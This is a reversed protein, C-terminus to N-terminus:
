AEMAEVENRFWQLGETWADTPTRRWRLLGTFANLGFRCDAGLAHKIAPVADGPHSYARLDDERPTLTGEVYRVMCHVYEHIIVKLASADARVPQRHHELARLARRAAKHTSSNTYVADGPTPGSDWDMRAFARPALKAALPNLFQLNRAKLWAYIKRSHYWSGIDERDLRALYEADRDVNYAPGSMDVLVGPPCKPEGNHGM